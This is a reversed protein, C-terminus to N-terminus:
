DSTEPISYVKRSSGFRNPCGLSDEEFNWEPKIRTLGHYCGCEYRKGIEDETSNGCCNNNQNTVNSCVLITRIM